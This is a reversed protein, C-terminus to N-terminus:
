GTFEMMCKNRLIAEVRDWLFQLNCTTSLFISLRNGWRSSSISKPSVPHIPCTLIEKENLNCSILIRIDVFFFIKFNQFVENEAAFWYKWCVLQSLDVLNFQSYCQRKVYKGCHCKLMEVLCAYYHVRQWYTVSKFHPIYLKSITIITHSTCPFVKFVGRSRTWRVIVWPWAKCEHWLATTVRWQYMILCVAMGTRANERRDM